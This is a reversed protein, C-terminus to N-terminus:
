VGFVSTGTPVGGAAKSKGIQQKVQRKEEEKFAKKLHKKEERRRRRQEKALQKRYKKQEPTENRDRQPIESEEDENSESNKGDEEEYSDERRSDCNYVDDESHSIRQETEPASPPLSVKFASTSSVNGGTNEVSGVAPHDESELSKDEDTAKGKLLSTKSQVVKPHNDLNSYTSIVTEADWKPKAKRKLFMNELMKLQEEEKKQSYDQEGWGYPAVISEGNTESHLKALRKNMERGEELVSAADIKTHKFEEIASDIVEQEAFAVDDDIEATLGSTKNETLAAGVVRGYGPVYEGLRFGRRKVESSESNIQTSTDEETEEADGEEDSDDCEGEESQVAEDIGEGIYEDDYQALVVDLHNELQRQDQSPLTEVEAEPKRKNSLQKNEDDMKFGQSLDEQEAQAMLRAIHADYDFGEIGFDGCHGGNSERADEEIEEENLWEKPIEKQGTAHMIFDDNLEEYEQGDEDGQEETDWEELAHYIGPPLSKGSVTISELMEERDVEEDETPLVEKPLRTNAGGSAAAAAAAAGNNGNRSRSGSLVHGDKSVVTGQQEAQALHQQYDYGDLPFGMEDVTALAMGEKRPQASKRMEEVPTSTLEGQANVGVM